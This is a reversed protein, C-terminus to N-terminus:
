FDLNEYHPPPRIGVVRDALLPRFSPRSKMRAYWERAAEFEQWPVDGLYDLVSLHAAAAIDAMSLEDGALWRRDEYLKSIYALHDRIARAGRRMAESDPHGARKMRKRLKEGWLPDTVERRFKVDFWFLLRRTEARQELTTGYLTRDPYAEELYEAIANSDCVHFGGDELVPVERAPNIAAFDEEAQWPEIEILEFALRKERLAIRIKRSFPCLPLHYLRLVAFEGPLAGVTRDRCSFRSRTVKPLGPLAGSEVVRALGSTRHRM